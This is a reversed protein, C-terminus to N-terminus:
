RPVVKFLFQRRTMMWIGLVVFIQLTTNITGLTLIDFSLHPLASYFLGILVIHITYCYLSNQGMPLLLWGVARSIPKWLLTAALYAFQFVIFSAILRGPALASKRFLEEVFVQVNIGPLLESVAGIASRLNILFIFLTGTLLFYPLRPIGNLRRSVKERHFGITMGVFFLLQWAALNFTTNGIIHWPLQAQAPFLQFALWLISSAAVLSGWRKNVLLWLGIPTLLLLLANMLPIDVLYMTRRLLLVELAFNLPNSLQLDHAWPLGLFLSFAAFGLTLIVTLKYLTLARKLAKIRAAKLGEKLAISGYVMGVVLGSIFVFAEAGSTFFANGGTVLYLWSSGGFHDVVMMFVAFGRLLDVRLDRKDRSAYSWQLAWSRPFVSLNPLVRTTPIVRLQASM